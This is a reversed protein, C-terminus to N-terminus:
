SLFVRICIVKHTTVLYIKRKDPSSLYFSQLIAIIYKGRCWRLCKYFLVPISTVLSFENPTINWRCKEALDEMARFWFESYGDTWSAGGIKAPRDQPFDPDNEAIWKLMTLAEYSPTIGLSFAYGGDLEEPEMNATAAFLPFQDRDVTSKLTMVTPPCPTWILDAGKQKVMNYAPIDKAPDFQNDYDVVELKVGPILDEENYYEVTDKLAKTIITMANAAVSTFDSINGITIVVDEQIKGGGGGDGGGGGNGKTNEDDGNCAVLLLGAIIVLSVVIFSVKKYVKM